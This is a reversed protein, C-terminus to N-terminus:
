PACALWDATPVGLVEKTWGGFSRCDARLNDLEKVWFRHYVTAESWRKGASHFHATKTMPVGALVIKRAGGARAVRIALLGSGGGLSDIPEIDTVTAQHLRHAGTWYVEAPDHGNAARRKAWGALKEPHMSAWAPLHAPWLAGIDNICVVDAPTFLALAHEVERFVDAGGGVVLATGPTACRTAWCTVASVFSAPAVPLVPAKM